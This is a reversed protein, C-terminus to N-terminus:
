KVHFVVRASWQAGCVAGWVACWWAGVVGRVCAGMVQQLYTSKGSM